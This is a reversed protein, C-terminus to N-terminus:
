RVLFVFIWMEVSIIRVQNKEDKWRVLYSFQGKIQPNEKHGLIRSVAFTGDNSSMELPKQCFNNRKIKQARTESVSDSSPAGILIHTPASWCFTVWDVEVM